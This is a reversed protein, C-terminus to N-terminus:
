SGLSRVAFVRILSPGLSIQTKAQRVTMENTKDHPPENGTCHLLNAVALHIRNVQNSRKVKSEQM